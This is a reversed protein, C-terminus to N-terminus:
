WNKTLKKHEKLHALALPLQLTPIKHAVRLNCKLLGVFTMSGLACVDSAKIFAVSAKVGGSRHIILEYPRTIYAPRMRNFFFHFLALSTTLFYFHSVQFNPLTQPHLRAM